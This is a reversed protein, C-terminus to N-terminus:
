TGIAIWAVVANAVYGDTASNVTISCGTTTISSVMAGFAMTSGLNELTCFVLPKSIYATPFTVSVTSSYNPNSFTQSGTTITGAQIVPNTVSQTTTGSTNWDTASGGQRQSQKLRLPISLKSDIIGAGAAINDNDINGNQLTYLKDIDTNLHAALITAGTVVDTSSSYTRTQVAM